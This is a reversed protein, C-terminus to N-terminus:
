FGHEDLQQLAKIANEDGQAASKTWWERAKSFSQEIGKGEAYMLGLFNQATPDGQNAALKYYEIARKDSQTLGRRGQVYYQGLQYQAGSHGGKAAMELLEITKKDSQKVGVGKLYRGALMAMAWAKGKEVWGRIRELEENSGGAVQKTRCM